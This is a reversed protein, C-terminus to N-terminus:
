LRAALSQAAQEKSAALLDVYAVPKGQHLMLSWEAWAKPMNRYICCAEGTEVPINQHNSRLISIWAEDPSWLSIYGREWEGDQLREVVSGELDSPPFTPPQDSLEQQTSGAPLESELSTELPSDRLTEMPARESQAPTARELQAPPNSARVSCTGARELQAPRHNTAAAGARQGGNFPWRLQRARALSDYQEVLELYRSGGLAPGLGYLNLKGPMVLEVVLQEAVLRDKLPTVTQRSYGLDRALRSLSLRRYETKSRSILGLIHLALHLQDRTTLGLLHTVAWQHAPENFFLQPQTANNM